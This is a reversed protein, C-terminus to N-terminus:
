WRPLVGTKWYLSGTFRCFARSAVACPFFVLSSVFTCWPFHCWVTRQLFLLLFCTAITTERNQSSGSSTKEPTVPLGVKCVARVGTSQLAQIYLPWSRWSVWVWSECPNPKQPLNKKKKSIKGHWIGVTCYLCLLMFALWSHLYCILILLSLRELM